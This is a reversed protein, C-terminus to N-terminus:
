DEFNTISISKGDKFIEEEVIKGDEYSIAKGHEIFEGDKIYGAAEYEIAGTEDNYFMTKTTTVEEDKRLIRLKNGNLTTIFGTTVSGSHHTHTGLSKGNKINELTAVAQKTDDTFVLIGTFLQNKYFVTSEGQENKVTANERELYSKGSDASISNDEAGCAFLFVLLVGFFLKPLNINM